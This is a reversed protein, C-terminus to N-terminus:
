NRRLRTRGAALTWETLPKGGASQLSLVLAGEDRSGLADFQAVILTNATERVSEGQVHLEAGRAAVLTGRGFERLSGEIPVDPTERAAIWWSDGNMSTALVVPQARAIAETRALRLDADLAAEVPPAISEPASSLGPIVISAFLTLLGVVLLLELMTFARRLSM